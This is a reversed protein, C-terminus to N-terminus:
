RVDSLISVRVNDLRVESQWSRFHGNNLLYSLEKYTLWVDLYFNLNLPFSFRFRFIFNCRFNIRFWFTFRFKLMFRGSFLSTNARTASGKSCWLARWQALYSNVEAGEWRERRERTESTPWKSGSGKYSWLLYLNPGSVKLIHEKTYFFMMWSMLLWETMWQALWSGEIDELHSILM